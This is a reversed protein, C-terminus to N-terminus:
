CNKSVDTVQECLQIVIYISKLCNLKAKTIQKSETQTDFYMTQIDFLEILNWAQTARAVIDIFPYEVNGLAAAKRFDWWWM